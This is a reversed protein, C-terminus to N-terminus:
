AVSCIHVLSLTREKIWVWCLWAPSTRIPNARISDSVGVLSSGWVGCWGVLRDHWEALMEFDPIGYGILDKMPIPYEPMPLRPVKAASEGVDPLLMSSVVPARASANRVRNAARVIRVADGYPISTAQVLEAPSDPVSDINRISVQNLVPGYTTTFGPELSSLLSSFSEGDVLSFGSLGSVGVSPGASQPTGGNGGQPGVM